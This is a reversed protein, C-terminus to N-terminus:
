TPSINCSRRHVEDFSREKSQRTRERRKAQSCDEGRRTLAERAVKTSAENRAEGKNGESREYVRLTAIAAGGSDAM